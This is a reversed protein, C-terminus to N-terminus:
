AASGHVTEGPPAMEPVLRPGSVAISMVVPAAITHSEDVALPDDFLPDLRGPAPMACSSLTDNEVGPLGFSQHVPGTPITTWTVAVPM